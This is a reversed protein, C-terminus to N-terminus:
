TGALDLGNSLVTLLLVGLVVGIVSGAGGGWAVGGIFVAAITTIELGSGLDASGSGVRSSLVLGALGACLSCVVYASLEVGRVNIGSLRAAERNGGVAYVYRGFRTRRLVLWSTLVVAIALLTPTAIFGIESGGLWRYAESFNSKPQSNTFILNFGILLQWTAVTAIIPSIRAGAVLTGNVLGVAVGALAALAFALPVAVSDAFTVAMISVLSVQAGVSIDIGGILIVFTQGAALIALAAGQRAMNQLNDGTDFLPETVVFYVVLTAVVALLGAYTSNRAFSAVPELLRSRWTGAEPESGRRDLTGAAAEQSLTADDARPVARM